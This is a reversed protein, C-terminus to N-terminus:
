PDQEDVIFEFFGLLEQGIEVAEKASVEKGFDDSLIERLENKLQENLM